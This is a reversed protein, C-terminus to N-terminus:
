VLQILKQALSLATATAPIVSGLMVAKDNWYIGVVTWSTAGLLYCLQGSVGFGANQLFVGGVAFFVGIWKLYSDPGGSPTSPAVVDFQHQMEELEAQLRKKEKSLEMALTAAKSMAREEKYEEKTQEETMNIGSARMINALYDSAM